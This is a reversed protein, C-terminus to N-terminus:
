QRRSPATNRSSPWQTCLHDRLVLRLYLHSSNLCQRHDFTTSRSCRTPGLWAEVHVFRVEPQESGIGTPSVTPRGDNRAPECRRGIAAEEKDFLRRPIGFQVVCVALSSDDRRRAALEIRQTFACCPSM